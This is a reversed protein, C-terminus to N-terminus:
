DSLDTCKKGMAYGAALGGTWANNLNYGGCEGDYDTVEGAFFLGPIMRSEMTNKDVEDLIVGGKAVQAYKWGMAGKVTLKWSLIDDCRAALKQDALSIIAGNELMKEVEERKFDPVFNFFLEYDGFETDDDTMLYRSLNMICIGSVYESNFQVEGTEFAVTKGKKLLSVRTRARVGKLESIDEAPIIGTLVPIMTKVTHGLERAWIYGEGNKGGTAIM